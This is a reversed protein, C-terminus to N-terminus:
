HSVSAGLDQSANKNISRHKVKVGWSMLVLINRLNSAGLFFGGLFFPIANLKYKKPM